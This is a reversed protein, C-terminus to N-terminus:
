LSDLSSHELVIIVVSGWIQFFFFFFALFTSDSLKKLLDILGILLCAIVHNVLLPLGSSSMVILSQFFSVEVSLGLYTNPYM